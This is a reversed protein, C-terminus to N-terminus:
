RGTAYKRELERIEPLGIFTNFEEFTIMRDLMSRTTGEEKLVQMLESVAKAIVYTSSVPYLAIHYGLKQLERASLLPTRGKELMNALVPVRFSSTILRMEEISEPSEIFLVDAGAEEYAKGRAIAEEIGYRTRADTRAIIVFDSDTRADVAAKIKGVMEEVPIVDRGLMHGCKKPMVQDELQIAAAGAKEYERVTRMVNVANGYGTDGDAIVPINVASAMHGVRMVMESMSLLGVDPKGLMSAATGYGTMYVAEFGTKEIIRATLVDHAGPLLLIPGGVQSRKLLQRLKTTQKM